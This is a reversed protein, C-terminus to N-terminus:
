HRLGRLLGRKWFRRISDTLTSIYSVAKPVNQPAAYEVQGGEITIEIRTEGVLICDGSNLKAKNVKQGNVFTGKTSVLDIISVDGPGNAEIIAHIRCVTEDDLKLHASSATGLQIVSLTRREERVFQNGKFIRFSLPVKAGAM